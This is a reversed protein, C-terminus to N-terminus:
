LRRTSFFRERFGNIEELLMSQSQGGVFEKERECQKPPDLFAQRQSYPCSFQYIADELESHRERWSKLCRYLYFSIFHDLEVVQMLSAM